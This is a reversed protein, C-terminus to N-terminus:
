YTIRLKNIKLYNLKTYTERVLLATERLIKTNSIHEFPCYVGGNWSGFSLYYDLLFNTASSFM